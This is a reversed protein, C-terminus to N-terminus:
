KPNIIQLAASYGIIEKKPIGKEECQKVYERYIASASALRAKFARGFPRPFVLPTQVQASAPAAATIEQIMKFAANMKNERTHRKIYHRRTTATRTQENGEKDTYKITEEYVYTKEDGNTITEIQKRQPTRNGEM